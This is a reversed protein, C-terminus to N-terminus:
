IFLEIWGTCCFEPTQPACTTFVNPALVLLAFTTLVVVAFLEEVAFLEVLLAVELLVDVVKALLVVLDAVVVVFDLGVDLDELLTLLM